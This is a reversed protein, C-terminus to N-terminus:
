AALDLVIGAEAPNNYGCSSGVALTEQTELSEMSVLLYGFGGRIWGCDSMVLKGWKEADEGGGL